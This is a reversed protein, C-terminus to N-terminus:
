RSGRATRAGRVLSTRAFKGTAVVDRMLRVVLQKGGPGAVLRSATAVRGSSDATSLEPDGGAGIAGLVAQAAAEPAVTPTGAEGVRNEPVDGLLDLDGIVRPELATITKASETGIAAAREMAWRPTRILVEARSPRYNIKMQRVAGRRMYRGYLHDAWGQARFLRNFQRVFEAEGHSLSRNEQTDDAVLVGAPVGLVDEVSRLLMDRDSDDVVIVTMNEPGVVESWRSVLEGQNHRYWFTRNPPEHPPKNFMADLWKEYGMRLGNQVYQQWQAPLIKTLPRLTVVVHVSSGGLDDVIRRIAAEDTAECFFESSIVPRQGGAAEVQRVLRQWAKENPKKDGFMPPRGMVEQAARATQFGKGVYTLGHEGLRDRALEFAGQMTTTGSKHPGIHLFRTSGPVSGKGTPM